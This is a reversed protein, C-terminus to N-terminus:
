KTMCLARRWERGRTFVSHFRSHFRDVSSGALGKGDVSSGRRDRGSRSWRLGLTHLVRARLSKTEDSEGPKPQWGLEAAVPTLLTAGVARLGARDADSVLYNSIYELKATVQSLM